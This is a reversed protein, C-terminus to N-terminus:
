IIIDFILLLISRIKFNRNNDKGINIIKPGKKNFQKENINENYAIIFKLFM